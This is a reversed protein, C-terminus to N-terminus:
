HNWTERTVINKVSNWKGKQKKYTDLEPHMIKVIEMVTKGEDYLRRIKKVDEVTYNARGNNEGQRGKCYTEYNNKITYAINESHTIWELNEFYSDTRIFNKHNVELPENSEPKPVFVMAVVRHVTISRRSKLNGLTVTPYGDPNLRQKVMGREPAIIRGYNSVKYKLGNFEWDKWEEPKRKPILRKSNKM